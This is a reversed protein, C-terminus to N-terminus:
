IPPYKANEGQNFAARDIVIPPDKYQRNLQTPAVDFTIEANTHCSAMCVTQRQGGDKRGIMSDQTGIVAPAHWDANLTPM